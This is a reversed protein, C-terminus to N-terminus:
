LSGIAPNFSFTLLSPLSSPSLSSPPPLPLLFNSSGWHCVTSGVVDFTVPNTLSATDIATFVVHGGIVDTLNVSVGSGPAGSMYPCMSGNCILENVLRSLETLDAVLALRYRERCAANMPPSNVTRMLLISHKLVQPNAAAPHQAV